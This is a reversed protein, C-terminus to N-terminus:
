FGFGEEAAASEDSVAFGPVLLTSVLAIVGVWGSSNSFHPM